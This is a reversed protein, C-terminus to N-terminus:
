SAHRSAGAAPPLAVAPTAPPAAPRGGAGLWRDLLATALLGAAALAFTVAIGHRDVLAGAAFSALLVGLNQFFNFVSFDRAYSAPTSIRFLLVELKVILQFLAWGFLVRGVLIAPVSPAAQLLLGVAGLVLNGPVQDLLVRGRAKARQNVFLAVLAVAGPIAFVLGALLQSASGSVAEWHLSFFPRVLYACFDFAM